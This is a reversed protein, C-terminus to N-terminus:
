LAVGAAQFVEVAAGLIGTEGGGEGLVIEVDRFNGGTNAALDRFFDGVLADFQARAADLLAAGANATGGTIAIRHPYFIVSLSALTQGVWAGVQTMIEVAVADEGVRAAAIVEHAKLPRGYRALALREIGPVGVLGEASGRIGNNDVPGNPDLIILGTNGSNGGDIILPKGDVIVAAGLGTGMALCMFREVGHGSGFVYEGLAHATLDNNMAVPLGYRAEIPTRIDVNRLAPTNGTIIPRRRERDVEGHASIGIGILDAGAQVVLADTAEFLSAFFPEASDGHAETPIKGSHRISGDHHILGLKTNTGGIDIALVTPTQM